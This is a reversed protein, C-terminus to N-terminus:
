RGGCLIFEDIDSPAGRFNNWFREVARQAIPSDRFRDRFYNFLAFEDRSLVYTDPQSQLKRWLEGIATELIASVRPDIQGDESNRASELARRVAERNPINPSNAMTVKLPIQSMSKAKM